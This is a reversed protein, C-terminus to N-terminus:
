EEAQPPAAEAKVPIKEEVPPAERKPRKLIRLLSFRPSARKARRGNAAYYYSYSHSQERVGNLAVGALHAGVASLAECSRLVATRRATGAYVVFLVADARAALIVADADVLVPPTDFIVVDAQERLTEILYEMRRSGLLDAPNPPLPGAPLVQLNEAVTSQLVESLNAEGLLLNTLGVDTQIDFIKHQTPRWLDADVVIVHQGSNALTLALNAAITSKGEQPGASTIILTKLRYDISSFQLNTRLVRFAGAAPTRLQSVSPMKGANIENGVRPIRGLTMLGLARRVDDETKVTDDIYELLYAAGGALILGMAFGLLMNTATGRGVEALSAQAPEVISLFNSTGKQLNTLLQAYTAEWTTIQTQLSTQRTRAEEIQRASNSKAIVDDLNSIEARSKQINGKLVEIESQVFQREAEREPDSTAPSQLILQQAIENTLVQVRQPDTDLVSIEILQTGPVLRTSVMSQLVAWNWPLGLTDLTAKLVPERRALDAYSQALVQGTYFETTSPNPDQIAQGVMLTTRSTFQRPATRAGIFGSTAGIVVAILILWWWRVLPRLYQYLGLSRGFVGDAVPGRARAMGAAPRRAASEGLGREAPLGGGLAADRDGARAWGGPPSALPSRAEDRASDSAESDSPVGEPQEDADLDRM